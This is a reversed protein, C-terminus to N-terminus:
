RPRTYREIEAQLGDFKDQLQRRLVAARMPASDIRQLVHAWFDLLAVAKVHLQEHSDLSTLQPEHRMREDLSRELQQNFLMVQAQDSREPLDLLERVPTGLSASLEHAVKSSHTGIAEPNPFLKFARSTGQGVLTAVARFPLATVFGETIVTGTGFIRPFIHWSQPLLPTTAGVEAHGLFRGLYSARGLIGMYGIAIGGLVSCALSIVLSMAFKFQGWHWRSEQLQVLIDQYERTFQQARTYIDTMRLIHDEVLIGEAVLEGWRQRLERAKETELTALFKLNDEWSDAM